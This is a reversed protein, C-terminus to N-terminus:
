SKGEKVGNRMPKGCDPCHFPLHYNCIAIIGDRFEAGCKSCIYVNGEGIWEGMDPNELLEKQWEITKKLKKIQGELASQKEIEKNVAATLIEMKDTVWPAFFRCRSCTKTSTASCYKEEIGIYFQCYEKKDADPVRSIIEEKTLSM